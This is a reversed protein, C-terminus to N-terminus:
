YVKFEGPMIFFEEKVFNNRVMPLKWMHDIGDEQQQVHSVKPFPAEILHVVVSVPKTSQQKFMSAFVAMSIALDNNTLSNESSNLPISSKDDQIPVNSSQGM